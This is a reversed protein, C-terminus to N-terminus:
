LSFIPDKEIYLQLSSNFSLSVKSVIWLSFLFYDLTCTNTIKLHDFSSNKNYLFLDFFDEKNLSIAIGWHPTHQSLIKFSIENKVQSNTSDMITNLYSKKLM